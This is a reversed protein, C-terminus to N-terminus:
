KERLPIEFWFTSGSGVRSEFKLVGKHEEIIKKSIALGLGSSLEGGTPRATLKQFPKFLNIQDEESIGPGEDRVFFFITGDKNELSITIEKGPPTFKIANLVLNDIVQGMKNSDVLCEPIDELQTSIKINKKESFFENIVIHHDALSKLSVPQLDLKLMGSEIVSVDLFGHVLKLMNESSRFIFELFRTKTEEPLSDIESLLIHSYGKIASLSNRMDHSAIGLFKNKDQNLESLEANRRELQKILQQLQIHIQVRALVESYNFPKTIYDVGGEQFGKIIDDPESRATVFIVPINQTASNSKLRRCTEFGDMDPMNVDMLILDPNFKETIELGQTGSQAISLSYDKELFEELISLNLPTDDVM